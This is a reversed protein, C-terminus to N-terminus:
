KGVVNITNLIRDSVPAGDAANVKLKVEMQMVPQLGDIELFVSKKDASLKVSKVELSDQGKSGDSVKYDDSGYANTWKYNWQKVSYSDASSASAEDLATPFDIHIGKSAIRIGAALHAPKGTYRVRQLAGDKAGNTQWGKLGAVYLQGDTPSFRPRMVGSEFKVPFKVVGGQEVGDVTEHLV